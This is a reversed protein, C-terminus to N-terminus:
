PWRRPLRRTSRGPRASAPSSPARSGPTTSRATSARSIPDRGRRRRRDVGTLGDSKPAPSRGFGIAQFM